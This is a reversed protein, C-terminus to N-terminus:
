PIAALPVQAGEISFLLSGTLQTLGGLEDTHVPELGANGAIYLAEINAGNPIDEDELCYVVPGRMISVKGVNDKIRPDALMYRVPMPIKM